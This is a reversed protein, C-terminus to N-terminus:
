FALDIFAECGEDEALGARLWPCDQNGVHEDSCERGHQDAVNSGRNQTIGDDFYTPM